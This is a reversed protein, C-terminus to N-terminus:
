PGGRGTVSIDKGKKIKLWSIFDKFNGLKTNGCCRITM